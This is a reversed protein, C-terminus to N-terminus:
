GINDDCCLVGAGRIVTLAGREEDIDRESSGARGDDVCRRDIDRRQHASDDSISCGIGPEPVVTRARQADESRM